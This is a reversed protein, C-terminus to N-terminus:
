TLASGTSIEQLGELDIRGQHLRGDAGRTPGHIRAMLAQVRLQTDPAGDPIESVARLLIDLDRYVGAGYAHRGQSVMLRRYQTEKVFEDSDEGFALTINKLDIIPSEGSTPSSKDIFAAVLKRHTAYVGNEFSGNARRTDPDLTSFDYHEDRCALIVHQAITENLGKYIGSGEEFGTRTRAFGDARREIASGAAAHGFLEHRLTDDLDEGVENSSIYVINDRPSYGGARQGLDVSDVLQIATRAFTDRIRDRMKPLLYGQEVGHNAGIVLQDEVRAHRERMTENRREVLNARRDLVGRVEPRSLVDDSPLQGGALENWSYGHQLDIRDNHSDPDVGTVITGLVARGVKPIRATIPQLFPSGPVNPDDLNLGANQGIYNERTALGLSM